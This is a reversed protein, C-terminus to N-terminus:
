KEPIEDLSYYIPLGLAMALNIEHQVGSNPWSPKEAVFLADCFRLWDSVLHLWFNEDPSYWWENHIYHYLNPIFPSHGKLILERGYHIAKQTNAECEAMDLGHRRGYTHAVYIRITDGGVM